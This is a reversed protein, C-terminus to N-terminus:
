LFGFEREVQAMEDLLRRGRNNGLQTIQELARRAIAKDQPTASDLLAKLDLRDQPRTQDNRALVKMAILDGRCAVPVHIGPFVELREARAVVSEEVGSSAFLLDIIVPETAEPPAFRVTALRGSTQQELIALIRYGAGQLAFILEESHQDSVSSVALDLDKTFRPEARAGVALGGILCWGVQQAELHQQIQLLYRPFDTM